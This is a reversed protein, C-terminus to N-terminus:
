THLQLILKQGLDSINRSKPSMIKDFLTNLMELLNIFTKEDNTLGQFVYEQNTVPQM